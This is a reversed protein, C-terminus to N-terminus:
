ETCTSRQYVSEKLTIDKENLSYPINECSHGSECVLKGYWGYKDNKSVILDYGWKDHVIDGEKLSIGNCDFIMNDKM